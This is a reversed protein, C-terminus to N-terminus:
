ARISGRSEGSTTSSSTSDRGKAIVGSAELVSGGQPPEILGVLRGERVLKMVTIRVRIRAGRQM